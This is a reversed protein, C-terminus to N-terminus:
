FEEQLDQFSLPALAHTREKRLTFSLIKRIKQIQIFDLAEYAQQLM